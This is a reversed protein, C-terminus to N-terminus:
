PQQSPYATVAFVPLDADPSRNQGLNYNEGTGEVVLTRVGLVRERGGLAATVQELLSGGQAALSAPLLALALLAPLFLRTSARM